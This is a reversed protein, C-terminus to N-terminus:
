NSAAPAETRRYLVDIAHGVHFPTGDWPAITRPGIAVGARDPLPAGAEPAQCWAPLRPAVELPRGNPQLVVVADDAGRTITFGGEHVARHHRRCLLLLNDLGTTGGDAWHVVHHADCRRASCGPFQCRGDRAQLARRISPPITRTKRGVDLVRGAEDHVMRVVAADCALRQSTEAAWRWRGTV